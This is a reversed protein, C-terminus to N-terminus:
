MAMMGQVQQIGAEGCGPLDLWNALRTSSEMCLTAEKWSSVNVNTQSAKRQNPKAKNRKYYKPDFRSGQM